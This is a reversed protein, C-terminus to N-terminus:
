VGEEIWNRALTVAAMADEGYGDAGAYERIKDDIAGGGVMIRVNDRLGAEALAAVAEKMPDYALTLLGCLGVVQPQHEKVADVFKQSPADVGIDVVDFGNLDLMFGVINKGIDHIDGAVTGLVVKGLKKEATESSSSIKSKSIASIQSLIEGAMLLEPIFYVGEAFRQGVIDMGKRCKELLKIPDDGQELMGKALEIAKEEQMEVIATILEESM